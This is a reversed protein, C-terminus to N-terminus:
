KGYYFYYVKHVLINTYNNFLDYSIKLFASINEHLGHLCTDPFSNVCDIM